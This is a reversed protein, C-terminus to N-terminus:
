TMLPSRRDNMLTVHTVALELLLDVSVAVQKHVVDFVKGVDLVTLQAIVAGTPPDVEFFVVLFM